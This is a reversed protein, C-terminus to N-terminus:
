SDAEDRLVGRGDIHWSATLDAEWVYWGSGSLELERARDAAAAFAVESGGATLATMDLLGAADEAQAMALASDRRKVIVRVPLSVDASGDIYEAQASLTGPRVVVGEQGDVASLRHLYVPSLGSATLSGGVAEIVQRVTASM